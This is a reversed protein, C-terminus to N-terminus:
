NTNKCSFKLLIFTLFIATKVDPPSEGPMFVARLATTRVQAYLLISQKPTELPYWPRIFSSILDKFVLLTLPIIFLPPVINYEALDSSNLVTLPRLFAYSFTFFCLISPITTM